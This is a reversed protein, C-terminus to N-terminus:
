VVGITWGLALLGVCISVQMLTGLVYGGRYYPLETQVDPTQPEPPTRVPLTTLGFYVGHSFAHWEAAYSLFGNRATTSETPGDPLEEQSPTASSDTTVTSQTDDNM